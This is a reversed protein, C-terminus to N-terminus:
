NEITKNTTKNWLNLLERNILSVPRKEITYNMSIKGKMSLIENGFRTYPSM